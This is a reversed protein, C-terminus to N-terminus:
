SLVDPYPTPPMLSGVSADASLTGPGRVVGAADEM